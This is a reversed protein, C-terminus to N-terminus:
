RARPWGRFVVAIRDPTQQLSRHLGQTLYM